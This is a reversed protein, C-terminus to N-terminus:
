SFLSYRNNKDSLFANIGRRTGSGSKERPPVMEKGSMTKTPYIQTWSHVYSGSSTVWSNWGRSWPSPKPFPIVCIPWHCATKPRKNFSIPFHLERKWQIQLNLPQPGGCKSSRRSLSSFACSFAQSILFSWIRFINNWGRSGAIGSVLGLRLDKLWQSLLNNRGGWPNREGAM